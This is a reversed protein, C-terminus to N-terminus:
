EHYRLSVLICPGGAIVNAGAARAAEIASASEAGPQMWINKIGRALADGVVRETIKPPTIISVGDFEGPASALDPYAALGEVEAATPNIPVVDFKNQMYVRLVKNGYKSRDQSAGVVAFRKGLLFKTIQEQDTM